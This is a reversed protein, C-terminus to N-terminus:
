VTARGAGRDRPSGVQRVYLQHILSNSRCADM